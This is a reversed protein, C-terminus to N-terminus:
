RSTMVYRARMCSYGYKKRYIYWYWSANVVHINVLAPNRGPAEFFLSLDRLIVWGHNTRRRGFTSTCSPVVMPRTEHWVRMRIYKLEWNQDRIAWIISCIRNVSRKSVVRDLTPCQFDGSTLKLIYFVIFTVYRFRVARPCENVFHLELSHTRMYVSRGGPPDVLAVRTCVHKSLKLCRGEYKEKWRGEVYKM